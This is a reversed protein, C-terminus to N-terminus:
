MQDFPAVDCFRVFTAAPVYQMVTVSAVPQVEVAHAVTFPVCPPTTTFAVATFALQPTALPLTVRAILPPTAGYLKLQPWRFKAPSGCFIPESVAPVYQTVTVSATPQVVATHADTVILAAGATTAVAVFAVQPCVLPFTVIVTVPPM